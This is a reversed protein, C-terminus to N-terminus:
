RKNLLQGSADRPDDVFRELITEAMAAAVIAGFKGSNSALRKDLKSPTPKPLSTRDRILANLEGLKFVERPSVTYIVGDEYDERTLLDFWDVLYVGRRYDPDVQRVDAKFVERVVGPDPLQDYEAESDRLLYVTSGIGLRGYSEQIRSELDSV